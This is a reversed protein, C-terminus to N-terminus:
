GNAQMKFDTPATFTVFAKKAFEGTWDWAGAAVVMGSGSPTNFKVTIEQDNEIHVDKRLGGFDFEVDAAPAQVGEIAFSGLAKSPRTSIVGEVLRFLSV